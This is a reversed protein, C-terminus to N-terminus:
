VGQIRTILMTDECPPDFHRPGAAEYSVAHRSAWVLWKAQRRSEGEVRRLCYVGGDISSVARYLPTPYGYIKSVGMRRDLPMLSHYPGVEHPLGQVPVNGLHTADQRAQIMHRLDDPIFFSHLPHKQMPPNSIFPLSPTYLHHTLENQPNPHHQYHSHFSPDEYSMQNDTSRSPITSPLPSNPMPYLLYPPYSSHFPVYPLV